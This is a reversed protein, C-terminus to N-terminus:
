ERAATSPVAAEARLIEAREWEKVARGEQRRGRLPGVPPGRRPRPRPPTYFAADGDWERLARRWDGGLEAAREVFDAVRRDGRALLAQLAAERPNEHFVRISSYRGVGRKIRDLKSELGRPEAFPAWQFPTWPKPVFSSISLTLKGFRQGEPGLVQLRRLFREALDVIADIDEANETPLGIM